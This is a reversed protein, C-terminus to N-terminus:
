KFSNCNRRTICNCNKITKAIDGYWVKMKWKPTVLYHACTM